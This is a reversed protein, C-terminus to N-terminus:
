KSITNLLVEVAAITATVKNSVETQTQTQTVPGTIPEIIVPTHIQRMSDICRSMYGWGDVSVKAVSGYLKYMKEVSDLSYKYYKITRDVFINITDIILHPNKELDQICITLASNFYEYLAIQIDKYESEKQFKKHVIQIERKYKLVDTKSLIYERRMTSLKTNLQDELNVNSEQRINNQAEHFRILTRKILSLFLDVKDCKCSVNLIVAINQKFELTIKKIDLCKLNQIREYSIMCQPGNLIMDNASGGNQLWETYHPNHVFVTKEIVKLTSWDFFTKCQTCFMQYCGSIKFVYAKCTPCPKTSKKIEEVNKVSDENCIHEIEIEKKDKDKDKDKDKKEKNLPEMCKKCMKTDCIGCIWKRNIFGKCDLVPCNCRIDNKNNKEDEPDDDIDVIVNLGPNLINSRKQRLELDLARQQKQFEAYITAQKKEYLRELERVNKEREIILQTQPLLVIQQDLLMKERHERYNGKKNSWIYDRGFNKILFELSFYTKCSPFLCQANETSAYFVKKYCKVCAEESCKPCTVITSDSVDNCCISCTILKSM